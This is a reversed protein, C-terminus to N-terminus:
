EGVEPANAQVEGNADEASQAKEQEVGGNVRFAGSLYYSSHFGDTCRILLRSSNGAPFGSLDLTYSLDTNGSIRYPAGSDDVFYLEYVLGDGDADSSTWEPSIVGSYEEGNLNTIEVTPRSSSISREWLMQTSPQAEFDTVKSQEVGLAANTSDATKEPYVLGYLRIATSGEPVSLVCRLYTMDLMEPPDSESFFGPDLSVVDLTNGWADSFVFYYNSGGAQAQGATFSELGAADTASLAAMPQGTVMDDDYCSQANYSGSRYLIGRILVTNDVHTDEQADGTLKDYLYEWLQSTIWHFDSTEEGASGMISVAESKGQMQYSDYAVQNASIYTGDSFLGHDRANEVKTNEATVQSGNEDMGTTGAPPTNVDLRLKGGNYEDGAGLIQAMQHSVQASLDVATTSFLAIDATPAYCYTSRGVGMSSDVFGFVADYSGLSGRFRQLALWVADLGATTNLDLAENSLDMMDGITVDLKDNSIPFCAQLHSVSKDWGEAPQTVEGAFNGKIPIMLIRLADTERLQVDRTKVSDELTVEFTYDGATLQKADETGIQFVFHKPTSSEHPLIRLLEQEDRLVRLYQSGNEYDVKLNEDLDMFVTTNRNAVLKDMLYLEGDANMGYSLAQNIQVEGTKGAFGNSDDAGNNDEAITRIPLFGNACGSFVLPVLLCLALLLCLTRKKIM